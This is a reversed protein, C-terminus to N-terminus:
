GREEVFRIIQPRGLAASCVAKPRATAKTQVQVPLPKGQATHIARVTGLREKIDGFQPNPVPTRNTSSVLFQRAPHGLHVCVGGVVVM